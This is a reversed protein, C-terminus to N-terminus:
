FPSAEDEDSMENITLLAAVGIGGVIVWKRWDPGQDVSPPTAPTAPKPPETPAPAPETPEAPAPDTPTPEPAPAPEQGAPTLALSLARTDGAQLSVAEPALFAGDKTEALLRYTGAEAASIRFVGRSSTPESRYRAQGMADVLVVTVGTSPTKGDALVVRGRLQASPLPAAVSPVLVVLAMALALSRRVLPLAM